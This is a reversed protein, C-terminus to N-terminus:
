RTAQPGPVGPIPAAGGFQLRMARQGPDHLNSYVRSTEQSLKKPSKLRFLALSPPARLLVLGGARQRSSEACVRVAARDPRSPRSIGQAHSSSSERGAPSFGLGKGSARPPLELRRDPTTAESTRDASTTRGSPAAEGECVALSIGKGSEVRANGAVEVSTAYRAEKHRHLSRLDRHRCYKPSGLAKGQGSSSSKAAPCYPM